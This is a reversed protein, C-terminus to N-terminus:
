GVVHGAIFIVATIIGNIRAFSVAAPRGGGGGGGGVGIVIVIVRM